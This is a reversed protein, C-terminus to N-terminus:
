PRTDPTGTAREGTTHDTEPNGAAPTPHGTAVRELVLLVGYSASGYSIRYDMGALRELLKRVPHEERGLRYFPWSLWDMLPYVVLGGHRVAVTQWGDGALRNLEPVTFHQHWEVRRSDDYGADRKGKRVLWHYLRPLRFRVNNSDLWAFWGAHPVTLILRGGPRLVRHMERFAAPRSDPPLHELVEVCTVYDFSNAAFPLKEAAAHHLEVTPLKSRAVTLAAPNIEVGALRATPYLRTCDDLWVGANCGVDLLSGVPHKIWDTVRM